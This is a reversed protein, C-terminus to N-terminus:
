SWEKEREVCCVNEMQDLFLMKSYVTVGIVELYAVVGKWTVRVGDTSSERNADLIDHCPHGAIPQLEVRGLSLYNPKTWRSTKTGTGCLRDRNCTIGNMRHIAIAVETHNKVRSEREFQVHRRDSTSAIIGHLDPLCASDPFRQCLFWTM